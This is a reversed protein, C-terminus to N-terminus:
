TINSFVTSANVGDRNQYNQQGRNQQPKSKDFTM